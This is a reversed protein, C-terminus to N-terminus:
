KKTYRDLGLFKKLGSIVMDITSNSKVGKNNAVLFEWIMIALAVWITQADVKAPLIASLDQAFASSLFMVM